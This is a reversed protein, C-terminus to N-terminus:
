PVIGPTFILAPEADRPRPTCVRAIMPLLYGYMEHLERRQEDTFPIGTQRALVAFDAEDMTDM